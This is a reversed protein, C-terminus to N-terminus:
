EDEKSSKEKDNEALAQNRDSELSCPDLLNVDILAVKMKQIKNPLLIRHLKFMKALSAAQLFLIQEKQLGRYFRPQFTHNRIILLARQLEEIKWVFIKNNIDTDKNNDEDEKQRNVNYIATLPTAKEAISLEPPMLVYRKLGKRVVPLEHKNLGLEIIADLWLKIQQIGPWVMGDPDIFTIESSLLQWGNQNLCYALTSKGSTPEGLLLIAKGEKVLSTANLILNNKQIMLAGIASSVLFTRVDRNSVSDDWEQWMIHCGQYVRFWGIGEIELRWDDISMQVTSTSHKSPQLQQWCEHNSRAICVIEHASDPDPHEPFEPLTIDSSIALGFASYLKHRSMDM